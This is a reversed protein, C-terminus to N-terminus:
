EVEMLLLETFTSFTGCEFLLYTNHQTWYEQEEESKCESFLGLLYMFYIGNFEHFNLRTISWM